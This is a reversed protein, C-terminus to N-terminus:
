RFAQGVCIRRDPRYSPAVHIDDSECHETGYGKRNTRHQPGRFGPDVNTGHCTAARIKVPLAHNMKRFNQHVPFFALKPGQPDHRRPIPFPEM